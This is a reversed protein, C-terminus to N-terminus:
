SLFNSFSVGAPAAAAAETWSGRVADTFKAVIAEHQTEWPKDTAFSDDFQMDSMIVLIQKALVDPPTENAIANELFLDLTAGLDTSGGWGLARTKHVLSGINLMKPDEDTGEDGDEIVTVLEPTSDFTFLRGFWGSARTNVQALLLSLAIAVQMPEGAM